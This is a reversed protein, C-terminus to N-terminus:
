CPAEEAHLRADVESVEISKLVLNRLVREREEDGIEAHEPWLNVNHFCEWGAVLIDSLNHREPVPIVFQFSERVKAVMETSRMPIGHGTAYERVKAILSELLSASVADAVSVMLKVPQDSPEPSDEFSPGWWEPVAVEFASAAAALHEIRRRTNPYTVSRQGLSRPALLYGFAHLYSEAFIRVGLFDCFIEELHLLVLTQALRYTIPALLDTALQAQTYQPYLTHYDSWHNTIIEAVVRDQVISNYNLSLNLSRWLTHGLEHGALPLLLPNASESAPFGILVFDRLDTIQTYAFPSYDWESSIILKMDPGIVDRGLRLMPGYVEFANRVNTSRLVFGLIPLYRFLRDLAHGCADTVVAPDSNPTLGNLVSLRSQLVTEIKTIALESHRYPFESEKLREVVKLASTLRRKSFEVVQIM